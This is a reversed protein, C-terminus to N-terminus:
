PNWVEEPIPRFASPDLRADFCYYHPEHQSEIVEVYGQQYCYELRAAAENDNQVASVLIAAFLAVFAVVITGMIIEMAYDCAFDWAGALFDLIAVSWKWNENIM